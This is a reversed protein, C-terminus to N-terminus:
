YLSHYWKQPCTVWVIEAEVGAFARESVGSSDIVTVEEPSGYWRGAVAWAIRTRGRSWRSAECSTCFALGSSDEDSVDVECRGHNASWLHIRYPASL